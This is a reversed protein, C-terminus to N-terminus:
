WTQGKDLTDFSEVLHVNLVLGFFLVASVANTVNRYTNYWSLNRMPMATLILLFGRPTYLVCPM